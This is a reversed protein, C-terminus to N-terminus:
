FRRNIPRAHLLIVRNHGHQKRVDRVAIEKCQLEFVAGVPRAARHPRHHQRCDDRKSMKGRGFDVRCLQYCTDM